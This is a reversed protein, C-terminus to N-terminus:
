FYRFVYDPADKGDRHNLLGFGIFRVAPLWAM